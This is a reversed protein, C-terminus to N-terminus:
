QQVLGSFEKARRSIDAGNEVLFQIISCISNIDDSSVATGSPLSLVRRTLRETEPLTAGAEPDLSRYPEMEHCGPYFYRRALINEAHLIDVILDRQIGTIDEDIELIIYQYNNKETEDYKILHIGPIDVLVGYQQYHNDNLHIINQMDELMTLGMAASVENMKGNTGLYAVLDYSKFGFNTMYRLKEALEDDNTVVAGGEFTNLFKTAHFSFVEAHGFNGIMKGQYSCGFAHAADFVLKLQHKQAIQSLEDVPCARGWVHVGMIATTRPTILTEIKAPDLNHTAPDIDCFVPTIDL